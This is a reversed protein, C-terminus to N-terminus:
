NGQTGHMLMEVAHNFSGAAIINKNNVFFIEDASEITNLRHAIIIRTTTKPLFELIEELLQETVTDINATAEDLILIEPKRLMARIFAILQRQGLSMTEGHSAVPTELGKEFRELLKMLHADALIQTLEQNTLNQYPENGYLINEKVTGTFLFPEQLIFGIKQAREAHSYARIDIGDLLVTGETPDFLRAILSATTTKGGGTPGVLAYTKSHELTFSIDHLVEKEPTYRFHVNKFEIIANQKKATTESELIPLNSTLNLLSSIRDWGALAIQFTSWFSAMQRLPNYFNNAYVLFSILLGITFEGQIILYIGYILVVLQALSAFLSFVPTFISNAWGASRAAQYNTNNVVAFHKKFYDRRNFALIVKFNSLSEQIEASLLGTTKLSEANKHKVWPSIFQNIILLIAAPALTALGLKLNLSVLFIGAGIMIFGSGIFQMLTQAFFQNLKDTDNNIRSILDGAKNENFFVVPLEQLKHFVRNRLTFLMRQTVGGMLRTQLYSSILAITYLILLGGGALFLGRYDGETIFHDIAYGIILPVVINAGSNIIISIGSLFLKVKETHLLGALATIAQWFTQQPREVNLNYNMITPAKNHSM